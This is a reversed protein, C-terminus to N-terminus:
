YTGNEIGGILNDAYTKAAALADSVAKSTAATTESTSDTASSLTVSTRTWGSIAVGSAAHTVVTPTASVFAVSYGTTQCYMTHSKCLAYGVLKTNTTTSLSMGALYSAQEFPKAFWYEGDALGYIDEATISGDANVVTVGAGTGTEAEPIKITVAESGDYTGTAAGAFSLSYPNKLATPVTPIASTNAKKSLANGVAAADAAKGSVSLTTDLEISTDSSAAIGRIEEAMEPPAITDTGGTKERIADAIGEMTESKIAVDM